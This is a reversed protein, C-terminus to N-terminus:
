NTKKCNFIIIEKPLEVKEQSKTILALKAYNINGVGEEERM